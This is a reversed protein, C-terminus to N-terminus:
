SCIHSRLTFLIIGHPFYILSHPGLLFWRTWYLYVPFWCPDTVPMFIYASNFKVELQFERKGHTTFFCWLVFIAILFILFAAYVVADTAYTPCPCDRFNFWWETLFLLGPHVSPGVPPGVSRCLSKYLQTYAVLFSCLFLHLKTLSEIDGM